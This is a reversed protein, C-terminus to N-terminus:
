SYVSMPGVNYTERARESERNRPNGTYDTETRIEKETDTKTHRRASSYYARAKQRHHTNFM